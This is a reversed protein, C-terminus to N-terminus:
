ILWIEDNDDKYAKMGEFVAQGYHFIRASPEISLPGYPMIQPETAM